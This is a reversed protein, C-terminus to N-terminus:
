IFKQKYNKRTSSFFFFQLTASISQHMNKHQKASRVHIFSCDQFGNPIDLADSTYQIDRLPCPGRKM